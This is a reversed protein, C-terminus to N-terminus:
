AAPNGVRQLWLGGPRQGIASPRHEQVLDRRLEWVRDNFMVVRWDRNGVLFAHILYIENWDRRGRLWAAPYEMPWFIDHIHVFVGPQLLPLVHLTTWVVDSGAKAAHTSDIFLFDGDTLDSFLSLPVSQVLDERVEVDDGPRMLRRLREPHPEVCSIRTSLQHQEITDLAVATSYGSGVELVTKPRYHRLMSHLIAADAEAYMVYPRYRQTTTLDPWYAALKEALECMAEEDIDLGAPRDTARAWRLAREGDAVTTSPSYFHGPPVQPPHRVVSGVSRVLTHFRRLGDSVRTVCRLRGAVARYPSM